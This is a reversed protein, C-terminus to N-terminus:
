DNIVPPILYMAWDVSLGFAIDEEVEKIIESILDEGLGMKRAERLFEEKGM